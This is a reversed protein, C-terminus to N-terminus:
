APPNAPGAPPPVPRDRDLEVLLAGGSAGIMAVFLLLDFGGAGFAARDFGVGLGVLSVALVILRLRPVEPLREALFVTAAVGLLALFLILSVADDLSPILALAALLSGGGILWGSLTTPLTFPLDVREPSPEKRSPEKGAAGALSPERSPAEVVSPRPRVAEPGPLAADPQTEPPPWVPAQPLEPEEPRPEVAAPQMPQSATASLDDAVDLATSCTPCFRAEEDIETGCSPCFRDPPTAADPV